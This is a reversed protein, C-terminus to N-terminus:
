FSVNLGFIVQKVLPYNGADIGFSTDWGGLEPDLGTYKTSTFLNIGQVYVRLSAINVKSLVSSPITYGLQLNKLRLFSGSELYFDNIETNTSFNSKNSAKPV